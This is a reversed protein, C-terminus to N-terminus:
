RNDPVSACEWFCMLKASVSDQDKYFFFCLEDEQRAATGAFSSSTVAIKSFCSAVGSKLGRRVVELDVPSLFAEFFILTLIDGFSSNWCIPSSQCQHNMLFRIRSFQCSHFSAASLKASRVSPLKGAPGCLVTNKNTWQDSMPGGCGHTAMLNQEERIAELSQQKPERQVCRRADPQHVPSLYLAPSSIGPLNVTAPNLTEPERQM